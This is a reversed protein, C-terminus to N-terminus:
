PSTEECGKEEGVATKCCSISNTSRLMEWQCQSTHDKWLSGANSPDWMMSSSNWGMPVSGVVVLETQLDSGLARPRLKHGHSGWHASQPFVFGLHTDQQPSRVQPFLATM